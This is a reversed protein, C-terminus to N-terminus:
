YYCIKLVKKHKNQTTDIVWCENLTKGKTGMGGITIVMEQVCGSIVTAAHGRRGM